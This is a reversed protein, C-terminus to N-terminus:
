HKITMVLVNEKSLRQIRLMERFSNITKSTINVNSFLFLEKICHILMPVKPVLVQLNTEANVVARWRGRDQALQIWKAGGGGL